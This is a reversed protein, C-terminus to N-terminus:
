IYFAINLHFPLYPTVNIFQKISCPMWRHLMRGFQRGGLSHGFVSSQHDFSRRVLSNQWCSFCPASLVGSAYAFMQWSVPNGTRHAFVMRVDSGRMSCHLHVWLEWTQWIEGYRERIECKFASAASAAAATCFGEARACEGPSSVRTPYKRIRLYKALSIVRSDTPQQPHIRTDRASHISMCHTSHAFLPLHSICCATNASDAASM